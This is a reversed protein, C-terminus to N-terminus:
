RSRNIVVKRSMAPLVDKQKCLLKCHTVLYIIGQMAVSHLSM